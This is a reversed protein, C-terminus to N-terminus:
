PLQRSWSRPMTARLLFYENIPRNDSLASVSPDKAILAQIPIQRSLIARFQLQPTPYPGWELMDRVAPQPMRSVAVEAPADPIPQESALFHWGWGEISGYVKVYPFSESIAKAVSAQVASDAPPLWQALMGGPVLHAKALTYFERSYLLSSGAAPVPPPPDIVIVDYRRGSRELFRRGDDIVIHANPLKVLQPADPFYYGFMAPVSPVLDVGTTDVGWSLMSRFTTGMGFCIALASRPQHSLLALPLDAMMKTIPTLSTIGMGNVLLQKHMGQGTALVTATDDRKVVREPFFEAFGKTGTVLLVACAAVIGVFALRGARGSKRGGAFTEPNVAALIGAGFLPLALVVTSGREGLLPLL